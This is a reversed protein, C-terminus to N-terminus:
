AEQLKLRRSRAGSIKTEVSAIKQELDKGALELTKFPSIDRVLRLLILQGNYALLLEDILELAENRFDM